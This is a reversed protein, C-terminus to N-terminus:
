TFGGPDAMFGCRPCALQILGNYELKAKKCRPCRDGQRLCRTRQRRPRGSGAGAQTPKVM